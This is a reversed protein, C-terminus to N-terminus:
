AIRPAEPAELPARTLVAFPPGVVDDLMRGDALRPQDFVAAVPAPGGAHVGPGLRPQPFDFQEPSGARFRRNRAAVADPETAQIVGGLQM